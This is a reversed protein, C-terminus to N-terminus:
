PADEIRLLMPAQKSVDTNSIEQLATQMDAELAEETLIVVPADEGINEKQTVSAISIDHNGLIGAIKALVGPTNQLLLRIYYRTRVKNMEIAQAEGTHGRFPAVRSHSNFKINLGVDVIDAVVASATAQRGAGLGTYMTDGVTDGKVTVANVVDNIHALPCDAPILAPHVRIQIDNEIRKIIALLKIKYGLERAYEIDQVTITEVGEIYVPDM